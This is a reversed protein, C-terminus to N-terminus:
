QEEEKLMRVKEVDKIRKAWALPCLELDKANLDKDKTWGMAYLDADKTWDIVNIDVDKTWDIVNFDVDKTWGLHVDLVVGADMIKRFAPFLPALKAVYADISGDRWLLLEVRVGARFKAIDAMFDYSIDFTKEELVINLRRVFNAPKIGHQDESFFYKEHSSHNEVRLQFTTNNYWIEKLEFVVDKCAYIRLHYPLACWFSGEAKKEKMMDYDYVTGPYHFVLDYIMDRLERPLSAHVQQCFARCCVAKYIELQNCEIINQCQIEKQIDEINYAGALSTADPLVMYELHEMKLIFPISWHPLCNQHARYIENVRELKKIVSGCQALIIQTQERRVEIEAAAKLGESSTVWKMASAYIIIPISTTFLLSYPRM